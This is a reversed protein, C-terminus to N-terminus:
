NENAREANFGLAFLPKAEEINEWAKEANPAVDRKAYRGYFRGAAILLLSAADGGELRNTRGIIQLEQLLPIALSYLKEETPRNRPM